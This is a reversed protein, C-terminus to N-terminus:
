YDSRQLKLREYHERMRRLARHHIQSVRSKSLGMLKAIEDFRLGQLYHYQIVAQEQDKLNEALSRVLRVLDHMERHRYVNHEYSEEAQQYMGSDELMYGIAVGIATDVLRSFLDHQNASVESLLDKFREDRLRSRATIQQQLESYKEIGSLVAGRIRHASYTKFSAGQAPDFRDIAEILGLMAYQRFEEFEVDYIQRSAFYKAAMMNAFPTYRMVLEARMAPSRDLRYAEWITREQDLASDTEM